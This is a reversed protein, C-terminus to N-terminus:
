KRHRPQAVINRAHVLEFLGSGALGGLTDKGHGHKQGVDAQREEALGAEM